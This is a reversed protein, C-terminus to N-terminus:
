TDGNSRIQRYANYQTEVPVVWFICLNPKASRKTSPMGQDSMSRGNTPTRSNLRGYVRLRDSSLIFISIREQGVQCFLLALTALRTVRMFSRKPM